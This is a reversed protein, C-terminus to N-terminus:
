IALYSMVIQLENKELQFIMMTKESLLYTIMKRICKTLTKWNQTLLLMLDLEVLTEATKRALVSYRTEVTRVIGWFEKKVLSSFKISNRLNYSDRFCGNFHKYALQAFKSFENSEESCYRVYIEFADNTGDLKMNIYMISFANIIESLCKSVYASTQDLLSNVVVKM